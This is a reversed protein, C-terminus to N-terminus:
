RSQTKHIIIGRITDQVFIGGVGSDANSAQNERGPQDISSFRLLASKTKECIAPLSQDAQWKQKKPRDILKITTHIHSPCNSIKKFRPITLSM